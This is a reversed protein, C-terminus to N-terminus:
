VALQIHLFNDDSSDALVAACDQSILKIQEIFVM